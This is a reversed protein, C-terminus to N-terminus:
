QNAPAPSALARGVEALVEVSADDFKGQKNPGVNLLFNSNRSNVLKLLELVQKATKPRTGESWFWSHELCWCTEGASTNGEPFHRLEKVAIDAYPTGKKGWDWWNSSYLVPRPLNRYFARAEEEPMIQPDLGDNWIYFVDPYKEVLEAIQALQFKKQEEANHTAPDCEPPLVKYKAAFGPHRWAYYLGVKLGRDKFSKVFQAVLDQKYPCDPHFVDFTTYKSDWLCFGSVHKATLVAYKMGAAKAANAWADTDVKGGPNFEAPDAYGAVWQVRKYTEMNYHIFMGFKMRLFEQKLEEVAASQKDSPREHSPRDAPAAAEGATGVGAIVATWLLASAIVCATRM